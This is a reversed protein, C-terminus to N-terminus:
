TFRWGDIWPRLFPDSNWTTKGVSNNGLYDNLASFFLFSVNLLEPYLIWLIIHTKQLWLM